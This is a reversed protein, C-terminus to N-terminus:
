QNILNTLLDKYSIGTKQWLSPFMSISTFGPLTNIENFYIENNESLFYDIRAIGACEFTEFIKKSISYFQKKLNESLQYDSILEAGEPDLYKAEYNYYGHKKSPKVAGIIPCVQTQGQNDQMVACEIEIGEINEQLIAKDDFHTFIESLANLYEQENYVKYVGRSSGGNCAKIFFPTKLNDVYEQYSQLENKKVISYKAIKIQYYESIIATLEKDFCLASSKHNCGIYSINLTEFFGQLIGNEGPSGHVINFVKNITIFEKNDILIGNKIFFINKEQFVVENIKKFEIKNNFLIFNNKRDMGVLFVNFLNQDINDFISKASIISIEHEPSPGGFLIVINKKM